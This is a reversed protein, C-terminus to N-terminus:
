PTGLRVKTSAASVAMLAPVGAQRLRADLDTIASADLRVLDLTWHGDAYHASKV